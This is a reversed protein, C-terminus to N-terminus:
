WGHVSGFSMCALCASTLNDNTVAADLYFRAAQGVWASPFVVWASGNNTFTGNFPRRFTEVFTSDNKNSPSEGVVTMTLVQGVVTKGTPSNWM